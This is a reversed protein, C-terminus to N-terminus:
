TAGVAAADPDKRRLRDRVALLLKGLNVLAILGAPVGIAAIRTERDSLLIFLHGVWPVTFAVRAQTPHDLGFKWPDRHSIADGQTRFTDGKISVIRHTVMEDIGSTAPPKYTIVDGVELESVPVVEDFVVSGRDITGTMSTGTIVYREYGFATPLLFAAALLTVLASVTNLTIRGLRRARRRRTPIEM